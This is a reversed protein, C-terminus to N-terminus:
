NLTIPVHAHLDIRKTRRGYARRLHRRLEVADRRRIQLLYRGLREAGLAAGRRVDDRAHSLEPASRDAELVVVQLLVLLALPEPLGDLRLTERRREAGVFPAHQQAAHG